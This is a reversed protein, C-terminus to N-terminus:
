ERQVWAFETSPPDHLTGDRIQWTSVVGREDDMLFLGVPMDGAVPPLAAIQSVQDRLWPSAEEGIHAACHARV